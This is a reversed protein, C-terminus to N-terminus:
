SFYSSRGKAAEILRGVDRFENAANKSPVHKRNRSCVLEYVVRESTLVRVDDDTRRLEHAQVERAMLSGYCGKKGCYLPSSGSEIRDRETVAEARERETVAEAGSLIPPQGPGERHAMVQKITTGRLVPGMQERYLVREGSTMKLSGVVYTGDPSVATNVEAKRVANDKGVIMLHRVANRLKARQQDADPWDRTVDPRPDPGAPLTASGIRQFMKILTFTEPALDKPM